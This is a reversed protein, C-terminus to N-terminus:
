GGIRCDGVHPATYCVGPTCAPSVYESVDIGVGTGWERAQKVHRLRYSASNGRGEDRVFGRPRALPSGLLDLGDACEVGDWDFM